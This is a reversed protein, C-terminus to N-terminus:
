SAEEAVLVGERVASYDAEGFGRDITTSIVAELSSSLGTNIQRGGAEEKFLRVDKLLHKSPFNATGAYLM